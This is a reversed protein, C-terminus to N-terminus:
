ALALLYAIVLPRGAENIPSFDYIIAPLETGFVQV